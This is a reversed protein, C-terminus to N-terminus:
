LVTRGLGPVADRGLDVAVASMRWGPRSGTQAAGEDVDGGSRRGRRGRDRRRGSYGEPVAAGAGTGELLEQRAGECLEVTPRPMRRRQFCVRLRVPASTRAGPLRLRQGADDDGLGRGAGRPGAGRWRGAGGRGPAGRGPGAARGPGRGGPNRSMRGLEAGRGTDGFGGRGPGLLGLSGAPGGAGGRGPPAPCAVVGVAARVLFLNVTSSLGVGPWSGSRSCALWASCCRVTTLPSMFWRYWCCPGGGPYRLDGWRTTPPERPRWQGPRAAAAPSRDVQAPCAAPRELHFMGLIAPCIWAAWGDRVEGGDPALRPGTSKPWTPPLQRGRRPKRSSWSRFRTQSARSASRSPKAAMASVGQGSGDAAYLMASRGPWPFGFWSPTASTPSRGVSTAFIQDRPRPASAQSPKSDM